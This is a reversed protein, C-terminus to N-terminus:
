FGDKENDDNHNIEKFSERQWKEGMSEANKQNVLGKVLLTKGDEKIHKLPVGLYKKGSKIILIDEDVAVSEGIKKGIGDLVFRCLLSNKYAEEIEQEEKRKIRNKSFFFVMNKVLLIIILLVCKSMRKDEAV